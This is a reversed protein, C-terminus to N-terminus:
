INTSRKKTKPRVSLNPSNIKVFKKETVFNHLHTLFCRVYASFILHCDFYVLASASFSFPANSLRSLNALSPPTHCRCM